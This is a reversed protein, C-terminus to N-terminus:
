GIRYHDDIISQGSLHGFCKANAQNTRESHQEIRFTSPEHRGDGRQKILKLREAEAEGRMGAGGDEFEGPFDFLSKKSWLM